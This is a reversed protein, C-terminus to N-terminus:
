KKSEGKMRDGLALNIGANMSIGKARADAKIWAHLERSVRIVLVAYPRRKRRQTPSLDRLLPKKRGKSLFEVKKREM